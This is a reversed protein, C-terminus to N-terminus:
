EGQMQHERYSSFEGDAITESIYYIVLCKKGKVSVLVGVAIFM